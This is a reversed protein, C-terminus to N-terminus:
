TGLGSVAKCFRCHSCSLQPRSEYKLHCTKVCCETQPCTASAMQAVTGSFIGQLCHHGDSAERGLTDAPCTSTAYGACTKSCCTQAAQVASSQRGDSPGAKVWGTPCTYTQETCRKRCCMQKCSGATGDAFVCRLHVYMTHTLAAAAAAAAAAPTTTAVASDAAPVPVCTSRVASCVQVITRRGDQTAAPAQITRGTRARRSSAAPRNAIQPQAIQLVCARVCSRIIPGDSQLAVAHAAAM